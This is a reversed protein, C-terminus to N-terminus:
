EDDQNEIQAIVLVGPYDKQIEPNEAASRVVGQISIIASRVFANNVVDAGFMEVNEELNDGFEFDVTLNRDAKPCSVKITKITSM